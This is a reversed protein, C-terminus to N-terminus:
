AKVGKLLNLTETKTKRYHSLPKDETSDGDKFFYYHMVAMRRRDPQIGFGPEIFEEREVLVGAPGFARLWYDRGTFKDAHDFAWAHKTDINELAEKMEKQTM